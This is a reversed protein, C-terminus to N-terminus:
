KSGHSVEMLSLPRFERGGGEFSYHYWELFNLRLGHIVGGVIGLILNTAHAFIVLLLAAAFPLAPVTQNIIGSVISGALALAYLRLYSLVDAFVQIATMIEFIGLFGNQIVAILTALLPGFIVLDFSIYHLQEPTFGFAYNLLSTAGLYGPTYCYAGILFLMWGILHPNKFLYRGMGFFIHIIGVFLALEFFLNDSFLDYIPKGTPSYSDPGHLFEETTTAKALQPRAKVFEKYLTDKTEIHYEARANVLATVLSYQRLPNNVSLPIGFFSHTCFGWLLCSVGLTTLLKFLRGALGIRPHYKRWLFLALTLLVFGYGGDGVIMAFFLAFFFYVCFSPDKDKHSPTDFIRVLDEGVRHLGKNSLLTPPVEQPETPVEEAIVSSADAILHIRSLNTTAAWGEIFFVSGELSPNAYAKTKELKERDCVKFFARRLTMEHKAAMKIRAYLAERNDKCLQLEAQLEVPSKNWKILQLEPLPASHGKQNQIEEFSVFYEVGERSGFSILSSNPTHCLLHLSQKGSWLTVTLNQFDERSFSGFPALRDIEQLLEKEQSNLKEIQEHAFLVDAVLLKPDHATPLLPTEAIFPRIIKLALEYREVEDSVGHKLFGKPESFEILGEKQCAKLFPGRVSEPGIFLLKQLTVRM